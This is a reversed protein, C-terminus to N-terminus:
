CPPPSSCSDFFTEARCACSSDVVLLTCYVDSMTSFHALSALSAALVGGFGWTEWHSSASTDESVDEGAFSRHLLNLDVEM